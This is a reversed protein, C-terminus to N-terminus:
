RLSATVVDANRRERPEVRAVCALTIISYAWAIKKGKVNVRSNEQFTRCHLLSLSLFLPDTEANSRTLSFSLLFFIKSLSHSFFFFPPIIGTTYLTYICHLNWHSYPNIGRVDRVRYEYLSSIGDFTELAENKKKKM